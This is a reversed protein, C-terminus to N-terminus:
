KPKISYVQHIKKDHFDVPITSETLDVIKYAEKIGGSLKFGRKNTSFYLEGTPLLRKMTSHILFEQDREVEFSGDMRKSNSFTPPDLFILDFKEKTPAELYELANEQIFSHNRLDLKNLQFNDQAWDLYTRSMDVSTTHAGGLAAAVSVSGTYCFLNLFKRSGINKWIKYRMPRHDLFLGTDLYDHLNIWFYAEGERIKFRKGTDGTKEYQNKGEQRERKKLVIKEAPVKFLNKLAEIVLPLHNKDRDIFSDSRDYILYFDKYVDVIFPFEPIDRDYLRFAEIHNRESWPKLKRFNKELRNQIM